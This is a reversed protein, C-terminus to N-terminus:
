ANELNLCVFPPRGVSLRKSNGAAAETAYCQELTPSYGHDVYAGGYADDRGYGFGQGYAIPTDIYGLGQDYGLDRCGASDKGADCGLHYACVSVSLMSGLTSLMM